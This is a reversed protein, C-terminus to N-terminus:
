NRLFIVETLSARVNNDTKSGEKHNFLAPRKQSKDRFEGYSSRATLGIAVATVRASQLAGSSIIPDTNLVTLNVPTPEYYYFIQLDEINNAVVVAGTAANNPDDLSVDHYDALLVNNEQDVYYTVLVVDRLNYVTSGAPFSLVSNGPPTFRGNLKIPITQSSPLPQGPEASGPNVEFLAAQSGNVIALIDNNRLMGNPFSAKLNIKEPDSLPSYGGSDVQGVAAGSEVEARFVTITDPEDEGGDVGFIARIGWQDSSDSSDIDAHRFWGPTDSRVSKGGVLTEQGPVYAQILSVQPGLLVLGNGAMRVDRAISYMASRLNQSQELRADAKLYYSVNARYIILAVGGIFVSILVVVLLEVLTAGVKLDLLGKRSLAPRPWLRDAQMDTGSQNLQFESVSGLRRGSSPLVGNASHRRVALSPRVPTM